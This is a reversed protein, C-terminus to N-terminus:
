NGHLTSNSLFLQLNKHCRHLGLGYGVEMCTQLAQILERVSWCATRWIDHWPLKGRRLNQLADASTECAHPAHASEHEWIQVGMRSM